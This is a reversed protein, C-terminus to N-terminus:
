RAAALNGAEQTEDRSQKLFPLLATGGTGTLEASAGRETSSAMSRTSATALNTRGDAHDRRSPVVIYRTVIQLHKNRFEVLARTAAQFSERFEQQEHTTGTQAALNRISGMQGAHELFRRHPGPMYGRVEEHFSIKTETLSPPDAQSRHPNSNGESTHEVGLIVDLFQILSSQGNSGGRLQMWEGQGKGNEYFVGRPLGAAGMNKSGALFPRIQHYFVQPDCKEYMRELILGLAGICRSFDKLAQSITTYDHRKAADLAKMMIPIIYSGRTEMAVSIMYFWSEDETGTFTHIAHIADLDTFDSSTSTFNWLNLAAYTAVPPLELHSAVELFPVSISAPLREAAKDGGWIYAHTLFGLVSYARRWEPETTLYATSLVPMADVQARLTQAKLSPALHQVVLEWPQYYQHPLLRLPASEPIFGNRSVAYKGLSKYDQSPMAIAHPSM